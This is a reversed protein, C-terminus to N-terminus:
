VAERAEKIARRLRRMAKREGFGGFEYGETPAHTAVNDLVRLLDGAAEILEGEASLDDRADRGLIRGTDM